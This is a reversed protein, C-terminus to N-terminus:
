RMWMESCRKSRFGSRNIFVFFFYSLCDDSGNSNMGFALEKGGHIQLHNKMAARCSTSFSCLNCSQKGDIIFHNMKELPDNCELCLAVTPQRAGSNSLPTWVKLCKDCSRGASKNVVFNVSCSIQSIPQSCNEVQQSVRYPSITLWHKENQFVSRSQELFSFTLLEDSTTKLCWLYKGMNKCETNNPMVFDKVMQLSGHQEPCCDICNDELIM